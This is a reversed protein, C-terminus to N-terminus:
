KSFQPCISSTLEKNEAHLHVWIRMIPGVAVQLEPTPKPCGLRAIGFQEMRSRTKIQQVAEESGVLMNVRLNDDKSLSVSQVEWGTDLPHASYYAELAKAAAENGTNDEGCAVLVTGAMFVALVQAFAILTHRM